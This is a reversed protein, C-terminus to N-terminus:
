FFYFCAISYLSFLIEHSRSLALRFGTPLTGSSFLYVSFSWLFNLDFRFIRNFIEHFLFHYGLSWYYIKKLPSGSVAGATLLLWTWATTKLLAALNKMNKMCNKNVFGVDCIFHNVSPVWYYYFFSFFFFMSYTLGFWISKNPCPAKQFYNTDTPRFFIFFFFIHLFFNNTNFFTSTTRFRFM